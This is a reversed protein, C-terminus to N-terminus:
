ATPRWTLLADNIRPVPLGLPLLAGHGSAAIRAAQAGLDFAIAHLGAAWAESLAFCWTEPWISPLFALDAALSAILSQAEGERYPGTIFIKGTELLPADDASRGAVLFELPLNRAAADRACGLLVDYGKAPGIGGIIAIRRAGAGPPKLTVPADTEWPTVIPRIKPFHRRIRTAADASPTAIHRAAAFEASSRAILTKPAIGEFTEDGLRAICATCGDLNPEGCYLQPEGPAAATLLTIRPCFSAYDHLVLDQPVGLAAAIGRIAPHHGLSHHLVSHHIGEVGLLVLLAPMQEPLTFRLNPYDGPVGDTLEAPWPFPTNKPDPPTSPFLLIPRKGAARIAAMDRAVIRAIGGGHDHSILLVAGTKNAGASFRAADLAKRAPALPDAAITAAILADYGPHLRALISANRANLARGAARFSVGGRHAVYAGTAAVHRYGEHRARLCFDNEEGYGQAFIEAHFPGTAALCDYRIFMCFGIATPIEVTAVGNAAAALSQLRSTEALDPMANRGAPEPYSLITAENSFPTATGIEASSYAAETLAEIAGQPIITDANLLLIDRGPAAQIGANAAAPFGRNTAHHIIQIKASPLTALWDALAPEPTADNVLIIKAGPPAAARLADFAAKTTDLDRYIPMVVALKARKPLTKVPEGCYIAPVPPIAAEAGPDAPSGFLDAGAPSVIRFPPSLGRLRLAPMAFSYRTAFPAFDDPPLSQGCTIDLRAGRADILALAPAIGPAAPRSAWGILAGDAISVVGEVREIAGMDFPPGLAGGDVRSIGGDPLVGSWGDFGAAKAIMAAVQAFAPDDPVCHRSLLAILALAAAGHEGLLRRATLLGLWAPVIDFRSALTEFAAAAFDFQAPGGLALRM